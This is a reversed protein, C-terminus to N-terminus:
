KSAFFWTFNGKLLLFKRTAGLMAARNEFPMQSGLFVQPSAAMRLCTWVHLSKVVKEGWFNALLVQFTDSSSWPECKIEGNKKEPAFSAAGSRDDCCRPKPTATEFRGVMAEWPAAPGGFHTNKQSNKVYLCVRKSM